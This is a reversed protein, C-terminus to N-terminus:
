LGKGVLASLPPIGLRVSDWAVSDVSGLAVDPSTAEGLSSCQHGGAWGLEMRGRRSCVTLFQCLYPWLCARMVFEAPKNQGCVQLIEYDYCGTFVEGSQNFSHM